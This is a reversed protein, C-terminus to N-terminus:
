FYLFLYDIPVGRLKDFNASFVSELPTSPMALPPVPPEVAAAALDAKFKCATALLPEYASKFLLGVVAFIV